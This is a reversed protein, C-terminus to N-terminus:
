LQLRTQSYIEVERVVVIHGELALAISKARLARLQIIPQIRVQNLLCWLMSALGNEVRNM